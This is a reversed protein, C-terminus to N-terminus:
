LSILFRVNVLIILLICVLVNIKLFSGKNDCLNLGINETLKIKPSKVECNCFGDWGLEVRNNFEQVLFLKHNILGPCGRICTANKGITACNYMPYEGGDLYKMQIILKHATSCDSYFKESDSNCTIEANLTRLYYYTCSSRTCTRYAVRKNDSFIIDNLNSIIRNTYNSDKIFTNEKIQVIEKETFYGIKITKPNIDKEFDTKLNILTFINLVAIGILVLISAIFLLIKGVKFLIQNDDDKSIMIQVHIVIIVIVSVFTLCARAQVIQYYPYNFCVFFKYVIGERPINILIITATSVILSIKKEISGFFISSGMGIIYFIGLVITASYISTYSIYRNFSDFAISGSYSAKAM